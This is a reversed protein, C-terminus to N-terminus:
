FFLCACVVIAQSDPMSRLSKRLDADAAVTAAAIGALALVAWDLVAM